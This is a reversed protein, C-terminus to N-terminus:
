KKDGNVLMGAKEFEIESFILKRLVDGLKEIRVRVQKGSDRERLTVDKNKISDGDVTLCFPIGMEDARAYRRGISGSADFFVDFWSN